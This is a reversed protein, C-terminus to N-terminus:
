RDEESERQVYVHDIRGTVVGPYDQTTVAALNVTEIKVTVAADGYNAFAARYSGAFTVAAHTGIFEIRGSRIRIPGPFEHTGPELVIKTPKRREHFWLGFMLSWALLMVIMEVRFLEQM